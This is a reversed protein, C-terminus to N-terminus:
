YIFGGLSLALYSTSNADQFGSSVFSYRLAILVAQRITGNRDYPILVGAQPTVLLAQHKEKVEIDSVTVKFTPLAAGVGLSAFPLVGGSTNVVYRVQPAVGVIEAHRYITGTIAGNMIPITDEPTKEFFYNWTGLVGLSLNGRFQYEAGAELGFPSAGRVFDRVGGIPVGPDYALWWYFGQARAPRELFLAGLLASLGLARRRRSSVRMM